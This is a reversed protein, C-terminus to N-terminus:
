APGQLDEGHGCESHAGGHRSAGSSRVTAPTTTATAMKSAPAAATAPTAMKSTPTTAVEATTASMETPAAMDTAASAETTTPSRVEASAVGYHTAGLKLRAGAESVVAVSATAAAKYGTM